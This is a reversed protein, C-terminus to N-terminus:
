VNATLLGDILRELFPFSKTQEGAPLVIPLPALGAATLSAALAGYYLGAVTEDTVVPVHGTVSDGKLARVLEGAKGLLQSGIHVEYSREGLAVPVVLSM